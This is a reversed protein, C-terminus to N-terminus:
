FLKVKWTCWIKKKTCSTCRIKTNNLLIINKKSLAMIEIGCILSNVQEVYCIAVNWM